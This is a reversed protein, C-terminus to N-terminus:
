LHTLLGRRYSFSFRKGVLVATAEPRDIPEPANSGYAPRALYQGISEKTAEKILSGSFGVLGIGAMVIILSVWRHSPQTVIDICIAPDRVSIVLPPSSPLRCQPLRCFSCSCWPDNPLDLSPYVLTWYEDDSSRTPSILGDTPQVRRVTTGTLDCAAPIWLLMVKFGSLTLDKHALLQSDEALYVPSSRRASIWTYLVPLFGQFTASTLSIFCRFLFISM